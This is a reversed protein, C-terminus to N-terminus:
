RYGLAQLKEEVSVEKASEEDTTVPAPEFDGSRTGTTHVWPVRRLEPVVAGPPHSWLGWEGIANGHDSTILLEADVARRLRDIDDLVWRLNDCYARWVESRTREGDRVQKWVEKGPTAYPKGPEGFTDLDDRDAFWEPQSRFPLHPQMYHVVLRDLDRSTWAAHARDTVVGPHTVDLYGGDVECGWSDDFVYDTYTVSDHRDVPTADALLHPMRGEPKSAFPNATVVGIREGQPLVDPQFTEGYWEPSASGVSWGSSCSLWDYEPVVECWQDYRCADVVLCIDWEDSWIPTVLGIRNDAANLARTAAEAAAKTLARIPGDRRATRAHKHAYSWPDIDIMPMLEEM